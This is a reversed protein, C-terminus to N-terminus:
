EAVFVVALVSERAMVYACAASRGARRFRKAECQIAFDLGHVAVNSLIRFSVM